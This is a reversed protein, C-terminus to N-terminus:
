AIRVEPLQDLELQHRLGTMELTSFQSEQYAGDHILLLRLAEWTIMDHFRSPMEPVDSSATLIQPGKSYRGRIVYAKDPTPGFVLEDKPTVAYETPRNWYDSSQDGRGYRSRWYEYPVQRLPQEDSLGIDADYLSLPQFWDHEEVWSAFRTLNFSAATYTAAGPSLAYTFDDLMWGWDRRSNQINLYAKRVWNVIKLPRGTLGSVNTIAGPDVTGSERALDQALELYTAM